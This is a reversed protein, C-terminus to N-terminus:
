LDPHEEDLPLSSAEDEDFTEDLDEVHYVEEPHAQYNEECTQGELVEEDITEDNIPFGERFLTHKLEQFVDQL